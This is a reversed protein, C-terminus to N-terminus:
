GAAICLANHEVSEITSPTKLKEEVTTGKGRTRNMAATIQVRENNVRRMIAGLSPVNKNLVFKEYGGTYLKFSPYNACSRVHSVYSPFVSVFPLSSLSSLINRLDLIALREMVDVRTRQM